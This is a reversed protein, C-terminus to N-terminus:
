IIYIYRNLYRTVFKPRGISFGEEGFGLSIIAIIAVGIRWIQTLLLFMVCDWLGNSRSIHRAGSNVGVVLLPRGNGGRRRGGGGRRRRRRGVGVMMWNSYVVGGGACEGVLHVSVIKDNWM